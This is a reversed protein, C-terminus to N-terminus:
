PRKAASSRTQKVSLRQAAAAVTRTTASMNGAADVSAIAFSRRDHHRLHIRLRLTKPKLTLTKRGNVILAYGRVNKRDPPPRWTLTLVTGDVKAKFAQPPGPPTQDLTFSRTTSWDSPNGAADVSRVRWFYVGDDLLAGDATWSATDGAVTASSGELLITTCEADACVQFQLTGRDGPDSSGFTGSLRVKNVVAADSLGSQTPVSPPSNDVVFTQAASWDGRNGVVDEALARWYYTGDGLAPAQWGASTGVPVSGSYGDTLINTCAADSCIEIFLRAQDGPDTPDDIRATLAPGSQVRLGAPSLLVPAEPPTADITFSLAPSWASANGVSDLARVRWFYLGDFLFAPTWSGTAGPALSGTTGSYSLVPATCSSTSCIEFSLSGSGGGPDAYVATLTPPQNLRVGDTFSGQAPAPPPTTDLTFQQVATASWASQNGAADQARARWYYSGDALGSATWSGSAGNVIGGPSSGSAAVSTCASDSCVQFSVSGTDPADPDSFTASLTPGSKVKAAVSGLTPVAPLTTDLVFSHVVSWAGQNGAVDQASARWYYTGDTLPGAATWTVGAGSGVTASTSSALVTTCAADSCIQFTVTGSDTADSDVFTANLQPVNTPAGAGPSTLAPKAPAVTDVTFSGTTSSTNAVSDTATVRWYYRGDTLASPTWTANGGSAIGGQVNTQLVSSCNSDACLRFTLMGSDAFPPDSYTASIQPTVNVRAAIAGVSPAVPATTDLIFSRVASWPSTNGAADQAQVRWYYVADALGTPTTSGGAGNPLGSSSSGSWVPSACSSDPSKCVQVNITGSDGVDGNSSFTGGLMPVTGLYAGDVPGSIGSLVPPHTDLTVSRVASWTSQNGALDVDRAQWYYTGDAVGGPTWSGSALSALDTVSSGSQLVSTCLSDGCLRFVISGKDGTSDIFTASLQTANIRAAPPPSSLTPPAPPVTDVVFSRAPNSWTSTNGASDTAMARWYYTGDHAGDGLTVPPTWTGTAGDALGSASSGSWLPPTSCTSDSCVQFSLTGTDGDPNSYTASLQPTANVRSTDLPSGLTPVNPLATAAPHAISATGNNVAFTALRNAAGAAPVAGSPFAVSQHRLYQVYLHENSALQFGGLNVQLQLTSTGATTIFNTGPSADGPAAGGACTGATTCTPDVLMTSTSISGSSVTVKWMGVALTATPVTSSWNETVTNQFTWTGAAFSVAGSGDVIWGKNTVSPAAPAPINQLNNAPKVGPQFDQYATTDFAIRNQTMTNASSPAATVLQWSGTVVSSATSSLYLTSSYDTLAATAPASARALGLVAFAVAAVV